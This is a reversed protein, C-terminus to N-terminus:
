HTFPKDPWFVHPCQGCGFIRSAAIPPTTSRFLLRPDGDDPIGPSPRRRHVGVRGSRPLALTLSRPTRSGCLVLEADIMSSLVTSRPIEPGYSVVHIQYESDSEALPSSLVSAGTIPQVVLEVLGAVSRVSRRFSLSGTGTLLRTKRSSLRFGPKKPARDKGKPARGYIIPATAAKPM